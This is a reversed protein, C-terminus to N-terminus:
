SPNISSLIFLIICIKLSYTSKLKLKSILTKKRKYNKTILLLLYVNTLFIKSVIKEFLNVYALTYICM